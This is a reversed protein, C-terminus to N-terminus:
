QCISVDAADDEFRQGIDLTAGTDLRASGIRAEAIREVLSCALTDDLACSRALDVLRVRLRITAARGGATAGGRGGRASGIGGEEVGTSRESAQAGEDGCQEENSFLM